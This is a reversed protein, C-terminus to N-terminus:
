RGDVSFAYLTGETNSGTTGAGYKFRNYGNGWYVTGDVVSPGGVTSYPPKFTWLISGDRTNMAYMDGATNAGFVVDGAVTLPAWAWGDAPDAVQWLVRGTSPDLAAYSSHTTTQGNALQYPTKNFNAEAVYIRKMDWATGWMIGGIHGGPGPAANWLVTGTNADMMWYQGSKQGAGIVKRLRGQYNILMLHAGDGFDYDDGPNQPCNNPPLGPVCAANWADFTRKGSAWKLDGNRADYALVSDYHNDPDHCEAPTGGNDQCDYVSQPLSYNQGTTFYVTNTTPDVTPAGWLPAGSYGGPVGGNDPVVYKKWIIAGTNADIANVNGRFTCCEHTTDWAFESERSSVGQYLKGNYLLPAMTLVSKYQTDIRKIWKLAGTSLDVSMLNAETWDTIYIANRATDVVPSTRAVSEPNGTFDPVYREWIKRGTKADAKYLWGSWDSFYIAGKSVTPTVSVDGRTKFTWKVKLRSATTSNIKREFFSTRTNFVDNGYNEWSTSSTFFQNPDATASSAVSTLGVAAVAAAATTLSLWRARVRRSSMTSSSM